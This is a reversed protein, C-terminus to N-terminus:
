YLVRLFSLTFPSLPPVQVRAHSSKNRVLYGRGRSEAAARVLQAVWDYTTLTLPSSGRVRVNFTDYEVLQTVGGQGPNRM